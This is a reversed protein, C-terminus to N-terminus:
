GDSWRRIIIPTVNLEVESLVNGIQDSLTLISDSFSLNSGALITTGEQEDANLINGYQDLLFLQGNSYMLGYGFKKDVGYVAAVVDDVEQGKYQSRYSESM